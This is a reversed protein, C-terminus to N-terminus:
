SVFILEEPAKAFNRFAVIINTIGTQRAPQLDAHYLEAGVPRIKVLIIIRVHKSYRGLFNL